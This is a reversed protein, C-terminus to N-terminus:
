VVNRLIGDRRVVARKQSIKSASTTMVNPGTM